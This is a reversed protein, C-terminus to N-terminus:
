RGAVLVREAATSGDNGNMTRTAARSSTGPMRLSCSSLSGRAETSGGGGGVVAANRAGCSPRTIRTRHYRSRPAKMMEISDHIGFVQSLTKLEPRAKEVMKKDMVRIVPM